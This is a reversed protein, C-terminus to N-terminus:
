HLHARLLELLEDESVTLYDSLIADRYLNLFIYRGKNRADDKYIPYCINRTKTHVNNFDAVESWRITTYGGFPTYIQLDSDSIILAPKRGMCLDVYRYFEFWMMYLAGAIMLGGVVLSCIWAWDPFRWWAERGIGLLVVGFVILMLYTVASTAAIFLHKEEYIEMEITKDTYIIHLREESPPNPM